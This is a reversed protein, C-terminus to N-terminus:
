LALELSEIRLLDLATLYQVDGSASDRLRFSLDRGHVECQEIVHPRGQLPVAKGLYWGFPNM